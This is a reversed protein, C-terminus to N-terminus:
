YVTVSPLLVVSSLYLFTPSMSYIKGCGYFLITKCINIIFWSIFYYSFITLISKALNGFFFSPGKVYIELIVSLTVISSFKIMYKTFNNM